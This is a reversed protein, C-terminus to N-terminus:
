TVSTYNEALICVPFVLILLKLGVWVLSTRFLKWWCTWTCTIPIPISPEGQLVCVRLAQSHHVVWQTYPLTHWCRPMFLCVCGMKCVPITKPMSIVCVCVCVGLSDLTPHLTCTSTSLM